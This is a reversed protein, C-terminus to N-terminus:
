AERLIVSVCVWDFNDYGLVSTKTASNVFAEFLLTELKETWASALEVAYRIGGCITGIVWQLAQLGDSLCKLGAAFLFRVWETKENAFESSLLGAVCVNETKRLLNRRAPWEADDIGDAEKELGTTSLRSRSFYQRGEHLLQEAAHACSFPKGKKNAWTILLRLKSEYPPVQLDAVSAQLDQRSGEIQLREGWGM